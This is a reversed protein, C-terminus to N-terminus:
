FIEAIASHAVHCNDTFHVKNNILTLIQKSILYKRKM